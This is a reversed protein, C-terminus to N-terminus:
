FLITTGTNIYEEKPHYLFSQLLFKTLDWDARPGYSKTVELFFVSRPCLAILCTIISFVPCNPNPSRSSHSRFIIM